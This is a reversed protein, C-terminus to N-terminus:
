FQSLEYTDENSDDNTIYNYHYYSGIIFPILNICAKLLKSFDLGLVFEFYYVINSLFFFYFVFTM